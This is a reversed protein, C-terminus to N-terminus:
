FIPGWVRKPALEESTKGRNSVSAIEMNFHAMFGVILEDWVVFDPEALIHKRKMKLSCHPGQM